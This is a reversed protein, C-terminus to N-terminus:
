SHYDEIGTVVLQNHQGAKEIRYILRFQKNLRMSYEHRRKRKLKEFHLSKM